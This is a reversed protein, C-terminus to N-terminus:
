TLPFTNHPPLIDVNGANAFSRTQITPATFQIARSGAFRGAVLAIAGSDAASWYSHILTNDTGYQDFGDSFLLTM